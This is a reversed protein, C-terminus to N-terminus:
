SVAKQVLDMDLGQDALYNVLLDLKLGKMLLFLPVQASKFWTMQSADSM